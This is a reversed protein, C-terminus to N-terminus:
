GGVAGIPWEAGARAFVFVVESVPLGTTAELARVYAEAQKRHGEAAAEVQSPGVSDSKWDVAVLHDGERFVMDIRGTAYGGDVRVTYPVEHWVARAARARAVVPSALCSEVMAHVEGAAEEIGGLVCMARATAEVDGPSRPDLLELARHMAEGKDTASGTPAGAIVPGDDAGSLVGPLPTDGEDATAPFV